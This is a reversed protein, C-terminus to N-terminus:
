MRRGFGLFRATALLLCAGLFAVVVSGLFGTEYIGTGGGLALSFLLGGVFAGILGLIVEVILGAGGGMVRSALWGALLGVVLWAAIGGPDMAFEAFLAV